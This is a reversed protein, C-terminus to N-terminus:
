VGGVMELKGERSVCIIIFLESRSRDEDSTCHPAINLHVQFSEKNERNRIGTNSKSFRSSVVPDIQYGVHM